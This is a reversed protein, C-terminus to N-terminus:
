RQPSLEDEFDSNKDDKNEWGDVILKWSSAPVCAALM